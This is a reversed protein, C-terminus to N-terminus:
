SPAAEAFQQADDGIQHWKAKYTVQLHFSPELQLERM